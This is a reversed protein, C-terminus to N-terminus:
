FIFFQEKTRALEVHTQGMQKRCNRFKQRYAEPVLEYGKLIIEKITDYSSSHEVSLQSYIERAKGIFISQSLLTWHEKQDNLNILKKKKFLLFWDLINLLM